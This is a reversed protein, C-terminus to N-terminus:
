PAAARTVGSWVPVLPSALGHILSTALSPNIDAETFRFSPDQHESDDDDTSESEDDTSVGGSWSCSEDTTDSLSDEADSAGSNGEAAPLAALGNADEDASTGGMFPHAMQLFPKILLISM